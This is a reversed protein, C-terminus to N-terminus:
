GGGYPPLWALEDGSELVESEDILIRQNRALKVSHLQGPVRKDIQARLGRASTGAPLDLSEEAADMLDRLPGFYLLRVRITETM